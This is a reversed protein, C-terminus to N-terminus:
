EEYPEVVIARHTAGSTIAAAQMSVCVSECAGCGNCADDVVHPRGDADLELAEYPCADVCFRCGNLKTHALCWDMTLVAKGLITTEKEANPALALADTPCVQECLPVGDNEDACWDCWHASFDLVPTRMGLVGLEIKAPRIIRCPCVEFCKECHICAAVLAEEDQGGPPRVAPTSGAFKLCGLGALATTGGIGLCLSRRSITVPKKAYKGAAAASAPEETTNM